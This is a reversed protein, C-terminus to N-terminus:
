LAVRACLLLIWVASYMFCSSSSLGIESASIQTTLLDISVMSSYPFFVKNSIFTIRTYSNQISDPTNKLPSRASILIFFRIAFRVIALSKYAVVIPIIIFANDNLYHFYEM